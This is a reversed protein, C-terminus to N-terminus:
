RTWPSPSGARSRRTRAGKMLGGLVDLERDTLGRALGFERWGPLFGIAKARSLLIDLCLVLIAISLGLFSAGDLLGQPLPAGLIIAIDQVIMAEVLVLFFVSLGRVPTRYRPPIRESFRLPFAISYTLSFAYTVSSFVGIISLVLEESMGPNIWYLAICLAGLTIFAWLVARVRGTFLLSLLGRCRHSRRGRILHV